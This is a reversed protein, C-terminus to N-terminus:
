AYTPAFEEVNGANAANDWYPSMQRLRHVIPPLQELVYDIDDDKTFRSLSFRLTGHAATFPIKMAKMVHSPELSGSTCASGSSAAIGVQNMMLLLAEGEIFEVAINTTNAVRQKPNGTVFTNPIRALLGQELRDRLLKIRHLETDIAQYALEAAKGMAIASAANETGARRGREQHGGRLLPRFRTGRRLYLAGIGKPAHFKHGSISLMDIETEHVNIMRKGAVQVADVHMQAGVTKAMMAMSEVPFLTGTENNAWMMSVIAVNESLAQAYAELDINGKGDVGIWHVKYGKRELNQCLQLTAPHEVVSTVIERREPNAELASLIATTTAETACSTFVVESSHQAGLLQQVQERAIELAQGVRAGLRHISSPNGYFEDLYPIMVDLVRPDIRTTANNDLYIMPQISSM